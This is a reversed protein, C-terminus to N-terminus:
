LSRGKWSSMLSKISRGSTRRITIIHDTVGSKDLNKEFPLGRSVPSSPRVQNRSLSQQVSTTLKEVLSTLHSIQEDLSRNNKDKENSLKPEARCPSSDHTPSGERSPFSVQRQSYATAGSTGRSGYLARHNAIATKVYRVAKQLTTPERDMAKMAAEKDRCGRLFTEMSIEEIMNGECNEYGDLALFYVRQAFDEVNENELQKTFPLKRRALIPLEKRSIRQKLHRKLDKYDGNKNVKRAYELAVDGLCELLRFAKKNASWGRHAAVRESQYIFSEWNPSDSGKFVSMKQMQPSKSRSRSRSTRTLNSSANDSSSSSTSRSRHRKSKKTARGRGPERPTQSGVASPKDQSTQSGSIPTALPKEAAPRENRVLRKPNANPELTYKSNQQVPSLTQFDANELVRNLPTNTKPKAGKFPDSIFGSSPIVSTLRDIILKQDAGKDALETTAKDKSTPITLTNDLSEKAVELESALATPTKYMSEDVESKLVVATRLFQVEDHLLKISKNMELLTSHLEKTSLIDSIEQAPPSVSSETELKKICVVGANSWAIWKSQETQTVDAM